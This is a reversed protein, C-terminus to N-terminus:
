EMKHVSEVEAMVEEETDDSFRARTHTPNQTLEDKVDGCNVRENYYTKRTELSDM